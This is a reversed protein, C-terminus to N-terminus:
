QRAWPLDVGDPGQEDPPLLSFRGEPSVALVWLEEPGRPRPRPRPSLSDFVVNPRDPDIGTVTVGSEALTHRTRGIGVLWGEHFFAILLSAGPAEDDTAFGKPRVFRKLGHPREIQIHPERPHGWFAGRIHGRDAKLGRAELEAVLDAPALFRRHQLGALPGDHELARQDLAQAGARQV